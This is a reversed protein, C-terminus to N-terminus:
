PEGANQDGIHTDKRWKAAEALRGLHQYLDALTSRIAETRTGGEGYAAAYIDHAELLPTEADEFRKASVLCEGYKQLMGGLFRHQPGLVERATTITEAYLGLSKDFQGGQCFADALHIAAILTRQHRAGKLRRTTDLAEGRLAAAEDFRGRALQLDALTAITQLTSPHEPGYVRRYGALAKVLVEAAENLRGEDRLPFALNYAAALTDPHDEGLVHRRADYVHRYLSEAEDLKRQAYLVSALNNMSELTSPHDEGLTRRRVDLTARHLSEAESLKGRRYLVVALNNMSQLTFPHEAGFVERDLALSEHGLQEAEELRNSQQLVWVRERIAYLTTPHHTGLIRRSSDVATRSLPEAEDLRGLQQLASVLNVETRLTEPPEDGSLRRRTALSERFLAEADAARGQSLLVWGLNNAATATENSASGSQKRHVDLLSRFLSEAEPLAGQDQLTLALENMTALTQPHEDGFLKRETVLAAELQKRSEDLLGLGRFTKGLTHRVAAQVGPQDALDTDLRKAAEDLVARFPLDRGLTRTPDVSAFVQQMFNNIAVNRATEAEAAARQQEAEARQAEALHEAHIARNRERTLHILGGVLALLFVLLTGTLMRNRKVFKRLQYVATAPRALIPEDSLCRRLDAALEAASQYRRAKDKELAKHVITEVDGRLHANVASLRTPVTEEILRAARAISKGSVDHPTRGSLLEYLIVGLAYVDSRSDLGSSRGAIQEPSMYAITGVLKGAETEITATRLDADTVRAVGFDVVKPQGGADILINGPKLDRHIVGKQHASHVADAITAVCKLRWRIDPQVSTVYEMLSLGDVLEMAFFPRVGHETTATGAEYIRAIGPHQLWGLVQAEHAFRRRLEVSDTGSKLVKLAVERRPQEQEALYVVGMGGEGIVHLLTYGNLRTGAPLSSNRPPAHDGVFQAFAASGPPDSLFDGARDHHELLSEVEARLSPAEACHQELVRSREDPSLGVVAAFLDEADSQHSQTM